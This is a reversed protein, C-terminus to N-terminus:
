LGNSDPVRTMQQDIQVDSEKGFTVLLKDGNAIPKDLADKDEVGNLFFRLRGDDATCFTQKTGTILCEKKLSMPLTKFFDDWTIGIKKVQVVNPNTSQIFVDASLNHYKPDTFIRLTGNTFIAFSAKIDVKIDESVSAIPTASPSPTVETKRTSLFFGFSVFLFVALGVALLAKNM